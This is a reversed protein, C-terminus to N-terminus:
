WKQTTKTPLDIWLIEMFDLKGLYLLIYSKKSHLSVLHRVM